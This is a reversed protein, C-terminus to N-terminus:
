RRPLSGPAPDLRPPAPITPRSAASVLAKGAVVATVAVFLARMAMPLYHYHDFHKLWAMPLFAIASMAWGAVLLVWEKRAAVWVAVNSALRALVAYPELNLWILWGADLTQVTLWVSGWAPVVYSLISDVVGPGSRFQQAQYGSVDSPVLRSRVILYLALVGWFAAQWGWCVRRRLLRMALAVGFLLAPVMVAQEYSGLSLLLAAVSAVAWLSVAPGPKQALVTGKTAPPDLPGPDPGPIRDASLREYRAYCALSLLAFLAMVSATRGPLWEIMRFRLDMRGPLEASLFTTTLAALLVRSVKRGPLFVLLLSGLALWNAWQALRWAGLGHWLAFLAAGPLALEIRDTFERLFWYLLLVCAICLLANTLGYGAPNTGWVTNDFEFFLTSIPRYFHNELPWDGGFWSLPDQRERVAALLVRTDSDELLAPSQARNLFIPLCLLLM